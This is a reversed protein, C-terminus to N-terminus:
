KDLEEAVEIFHKTAQIQGDLILIGELLTDEYDEDSEQFQQQMEAMDQELSILHLKLYETFQNM